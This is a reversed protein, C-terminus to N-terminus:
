APQRALRQFARFSRELLAPAIDRLIFVLRSRREADPWAPLHSPPHVIHQVGNILLPGEGGGLDLLGKVRLVDAGRAHLLLTLWVGFGTWDVAEDLELVHAAIAGHRHAHPLAPPLTRPLDAPVGGLLLAAPPPANASVFMGATPNLTALRARLAAVAGAPALDAKTIVIRDAVAAQKVAEDQRDLQAAGNVGDVTAIVQGIRFHHRLVPAHLLTALVPVPDALGTTELILRRFPPLTGAERRAHLGIIAEALDGRITCCVCGSALLVAEGTLDALLHHDLGVEGFENVLVACDGFDPSALIHRLLTTKGSGLFGTLVDVPITM